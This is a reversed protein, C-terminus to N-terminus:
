IRCICKLLHISSNEPIHHCTTGSPKNNRSIQLSTTVHPTLPNTTGTTRFPHPSTHHWQTQQEQQESPIHHCTTDIPKNNRSNQLSTTVHPTVPNTTGAIRFCCVAKITQILGDLVHALSSSGSSSPMISRQFM